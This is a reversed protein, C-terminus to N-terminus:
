LALTMVGEGDVLTAGASRYFAISGANRDWVTWILLEAGRARGHDAVAALMRSGLGGRRAGATVFFDSMLLAPQMTDAWWVPNVIAYGAVRGGAEALLTEFLGRGGPGDRVLRALIEPEAFAPATEAIVANFRYFEAMLAAVAPLDAPTALRFAAM